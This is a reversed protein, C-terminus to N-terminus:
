GGHGAIYVEGTTPHVAIAQGTERGNEGVYTSQLLVAQSRGCFLLILFSVVFLFLVGSAMSSEKRSM